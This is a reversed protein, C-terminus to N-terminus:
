ADRIGDEAQFFFGVGSMLHCVGCALVDGHGHLVVTPAPPHEEPFWDVGNSLDDIEKTTYSKTTGTSSTQGPEESPLDGNKVQYAWSVDKGGRQQSHVAMAVALM